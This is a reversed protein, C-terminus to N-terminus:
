NKVKQATYFKRRWSDPQTYNISDEREGAGVDRGERRGPGRKAKGAQLSWNNERLPLSLEFQNEHSLLLLLGLKKTQFTCCSHRLNSQFKEVRQSIPLHGHHPTPILRAKLARGDWVMQSKLGQEEKGVEFGDPIESGTGGKCGLGVWVLGVQGM